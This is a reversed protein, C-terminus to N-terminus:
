LMRRQHLEQPTIMRHIKFIRHICQSTLRSQHLFFLAIKIEIKKLLSRSVKLGNELMLQGESPYNLKVFKLGEYFFREALAESAKKNKMLGSETFKTKIRLNLERADRVLREIKSPDKSANSLHATSDSMLIDSVIDAHFIVKTHTNYVGANVDHLVDEGNKLDEWYILSKDYRWLCSSTHWKRKQTASISVHAENGKFHRARHIKGADGNMQSLGYVMIADPHENFLEVQTSLKGPLIQDDSDLYQTYTGSSIKLGNQRAIGPGANKQKLFVFSVHSGKCWEKVQKEYDVQSGDDVVILEIHPYDQKLVSQVALQLQEPNNFFPIIVSVIKNM